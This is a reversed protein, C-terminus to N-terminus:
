GHCITPVSQLLSIKERKQSPVVKKQAPTSKHEPIHATTKKPGNSASTELYFVRDMRAAIIYSKALINLM